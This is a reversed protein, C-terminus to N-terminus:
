PEGHRRVWTDILAKREAASAGTLELVDGDLEIRVSQSANRAVWDRLAEVVQGLVHHSRVLKVVLAGIAVLEVGKAGAPADGAAVPEVEDVDLDALEERLLVSSEAVAEDDLEADTLVVHLEIRDAWVDGGEEPTGSPM